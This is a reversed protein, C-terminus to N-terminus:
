GAEVMWSRAGGQSLRLLFDLTGAMGTGYGAGVRLGTEDPVVLRGDIVAARAVIVAALDAAWDRYDAARPSGAQEAAAAADLLFQGNGALGHCAVPSPLWRARHVALAAAHVLDWYRSAQDHHAAALRVLFTGVGSAGNCWHLLMDKSSVPSNRDTRWTAAGTREDLDAAAALTRGAAEALESYRPEGCAQGAALLFAGVGAVGHAFGFHWSGALASDFDDPIPWFVGDDTVRAAEALGDACQRARDLFETRGSLQWLALQALGVGAVGHCIDPNPWRIPLRLGLEEARGALEADRLTGAAARLAWATGARGFYLGPLLRPVRDLREAMWGTVVPLAGAAQSYGHGAARALVALVGAAGYQVNLPDTGGGFGDTEWLWDADPRMTAILHALGDEIVRQVTPGAPRPVPGSPPQEGQLFDAAQALTWRRGPDSECLGTLLPWWQRILPRDDEALALLAGIRESLTRGSDPGDALLAPPTGLALHVLMAGLAFRDAAPEQAVGYAPLHLTEPAVFGPTYIRGVVDGPRAAHETDILVLEGAPTVMVNNSNLDRLVWGREHVAAVLRVLRLALGSADPVPDGAAGAITHSLSRGEVFEEALFTHDDVDFLSVLAPTLPSLETLVKAEYALLARSDLGRRDSGIHARAEKILVPYGTKTDTAQYVGGRASHRLARLVEFRGDALTPRAPKGGVPKGSTAGPAPGTVPAPGTAPAPSTVSAPSTVPSGPLSLPPVWAPPTFWPKRQDAVLGGDPDRLRAEFSGDNTLVRVGRFAGFRYQVISGPRYQRDSLIKPGPMGVTADCLEAALRHFQEEDAPYATLFKGAQARDYRVSTLETVRDLDKAFKFSCGHGLLVQGAAHLVVPASLPTASLHLKWGQVREVPATGSVHCWFGEETVQLGTLGLKTITERVIGSLPFPMGPTTM